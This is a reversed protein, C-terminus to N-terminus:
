VEFRYLLAPGGLYIGGDVNVCRGQAYVLPKHVRYPDVGRVYHIPTHGHVIQSLGGGGPLDLMADANQLHTHGNLDLFGGRNSFVSMLELWANMNDSDLVRWVYINIATISRGLTMYAHTDAHMLLRDGVRWLAPRHALWNMHRDSFLALDADIGGNRLWNERFSGMSDGTPRDQFRQVGMLLIDHNGLIADVKGGHAMAEDQLRMALDIAPVGDPGRDCFDGVFWLHSDSGSWALSSTILGAQVLAAVINQYHGHVDGVVYVSTM